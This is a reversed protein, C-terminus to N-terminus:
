EIFFKYYIIFFYFFLCSLNQFCIDCLDKHFLKSLFFFVRKRGLELYELIRKWNQQWKLRLPFIFYFM